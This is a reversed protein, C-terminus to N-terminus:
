PNSKKQSGLTLKGGRGRGRPMIASFVSGRYRSVLDLWRNGRLKPRLDKHRGGKEAWERRGPGSLVKKRKEDSTTEGAEGSINEWLSEIRM